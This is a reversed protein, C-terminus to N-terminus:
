IFEISNKQLFIPGEFFPGKKNYKDKSLSEVNM